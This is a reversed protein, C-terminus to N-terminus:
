RVKIAYEGAQKIGVRQAILSKEPDIIYMRGQWSPSFNSKNLGLERIRGEDLLEKTQKNALKKAM